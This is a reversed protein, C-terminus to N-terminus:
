SREFAIGPLSYPLFVEAKTPQLRPALAESLQTEVQEISIDQYPEIGMNTLTCELM